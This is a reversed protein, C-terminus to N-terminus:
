FDNIFVGVLCIINLYIYVVKTIFIQSINILVGVSFFGGCGGGGICLM